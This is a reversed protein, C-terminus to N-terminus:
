GGCVGKGTGAAKRIQPPPRPPPQTQASQYRGAPGTTRAPGQGAPLGGVQVGSNPDTSQMRTIQSIKRQSLYLM